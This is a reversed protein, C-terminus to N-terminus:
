KKFKIIKQFGVSHTNYFVDYHYSYLNNRKDKISITPAVSLRTPINVVNLGVYVQMKAPETITNDITITTFISDTTKIYQPFKPTYVLEQSILEGKTITMITGSILSDEYNNSYMLYISDIPQPESIPVKIYITKSPLKITDTYSRTIVKTNTKTRISHTSNNDCGRILFIIIIVLIINIITQKYRLLM